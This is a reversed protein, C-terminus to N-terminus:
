YFPPPTPLVLVDSLATFERKRDGTTYTTQKLSSDWDSWSPQDNDDLPGGAPNEAM